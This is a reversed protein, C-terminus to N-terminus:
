EYWIEVKYGDPDSVYAYPFGPSFEGSELIVGGAKTVVSIARDIDKPDVLRFGFHDIGKTKGADTPQLEFALIDWKGPGKVQISNEDRYYERVGFVDQYFKLSRELDKVALSIHSLGHTKIM